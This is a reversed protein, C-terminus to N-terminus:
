RFDRQPNNLFFSLFLAMAGAIPMVLIASRHAIFAGSESLGSIVALVIAIGLAGGIRQITHIISTGSGISDGEIANAGISTLTPWVSAMGIGSGMLAPVTLLLHPDQDVNIWMILFLFSYTILGPIIVLRYGRVDALKGFWVSFLSMSAPMITLLLGAEILTFEWIEIMFLLIAIWHAYFAIGAFLSMACALSFNRHIFLDTQLPSNDMTMSRKILISLLCVAIMFLSLSKFSAFGWDASKVIPLILCSLGVITLVSGIRDMKFPKSTEELKNDTQLCYLVFLGIPVQLGFLARWSFTSILQTVLLPATFGAVATYLGWRGISESEKGIGGYKIVLAVAAPGMLAQSAAALGRAAVLLWISPALMSLLMGAVFLKIGLKYLKYPGSSDALRGAQLLLAAGVVNSANLVWSATAADGGAFNDRIDPFIFFSASADWGGIFGALM